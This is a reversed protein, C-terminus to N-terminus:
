TLPKAARRLSKWARPWAKRASEMREHEALVLVGDDRLRPDTGPSGVAGVCM